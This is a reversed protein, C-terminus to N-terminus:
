RSRKPRPRPKSAVEYVRAAILAISHQATSLAVKDALAPDYAAVESLTVNHWIPLVPVGRLTEMSTIAALERETWAKRFYSKSLVIVACKASSVGSSIRKRLSDGIALEFEDFWVSIGYEELAAALPRAIDAREESSYSLFVRPRGRVRGLSNRISTPTLGAWTVDRICAAAVEAAGLLGISLADVNMSLWESWPVYSMDWHELQGDERLSGDVGCIHVYDGSDNKTYIALISMRSVAPELALLQKHVNRFVNRKRPECSQMTLTDQIDEWSVATLLEQLTTM